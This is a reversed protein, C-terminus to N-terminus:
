MQSLKDKHKADLLKITLSNVSGTSVKPTQLEVNGDNALQLLSAFKRSSMKVQNKNLVQFVNLEKKKEPDITLKSLDELVNQSTLGIDFHSTKLSQQLYPRIKEEWVQVRVEINSKKIRNNADKFIQEVKNEFLKYKDATFDQMSIQNSPCVNSGAQQSAFLDVSVADNYDEDNDEFINENDEEYNEEVVEDSKGNDSNGNISKSKRNLKRIERKRSKMLEEQKQCQIIQCKTAGFCNEDTPLGSLSRLTSIFNPLATKNSSHFSTKKCKIPKDAWAHISVSDDDFDLYTFYKIIEETKDQTFESTPKVRTFSNRQFTTLFKTADNVTNIGPQNDVDGLFDCGGDEYDDMDNNMVVSNHDEDVIPVSFFDNETPTPDVFVAKESTKPHLCVMSSNEIFLHNILQDYFNVSKEYYGNSSTLKSGRVGTDKNEDGINQHQCRKLIESDVQSSDVVKKRRRTSNINMLNLCEPTVGRKSATSKKNQKQNENLLVLDVAEQCVRELFDVKKGWVAVSGQIVYSAKAFDVQFTLSFKIKLLLGQTQSLEFLYTYFM